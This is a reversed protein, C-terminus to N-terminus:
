VSEGWFRSPSALSAGIVARGVDGLVDFYELDVALALPADAFGVLKSDESECMVTANRQRSRRAVGAYSLMSWMRHLVVM